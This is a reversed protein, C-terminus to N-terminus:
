REPLDIPEISYDIVEGVTHNLTYDPSYIMNAIVLTRDELMEYEIKLLGDTLYHISCLPYGRAASAKAAEPVYGAVELYRRKYLSAVSDIESVTDITDGIKLPKFADYSLMEGIVIPYGKTVTLDSRWHKLFIFERYGNETDYILYEEGTSAKRLAKTPFLRLLEVTDNPISGFTYFRCADEGIQVIYNHLLLEDDPYVPIDLKKMEPEDTNISGSDTEPPQSQPAETPASTIQPTPEPTNEPQETPEPAKTADSVATPQPEPTAKAASQEKPKCASISTIALFVVLLVNLLKKM